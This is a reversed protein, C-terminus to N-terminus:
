IVVIIVRELIILHKYKGIKYKRLKYRGMKDM